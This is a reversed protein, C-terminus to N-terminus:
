TAFPQDPSTGSQGASDSAAAHTSDVYWVNGAVFTRDVVSAIGGPFRNVLLPSHAM